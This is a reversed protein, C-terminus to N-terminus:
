FLCIFFIRLYSVLHVACHEEPTLSRMSIGKSKIMKKYDSPPDRSSRMCNARNVDVSLHSMMVEVPNRYVFIWPIDPYAINMVNIYKSGISQIKFFLHTENPDDTRGMLTIVKQFLEAADDESCTKFGDGCAQLAAIPPPSESYARSKEPNFAALSNAVLTSGCRSEHFVFGNPELTHASGSNEEDYASIESLAEDIGFEFQSHACHPSKSVLDRFMPTTTPDNKHAEWNVRCFM